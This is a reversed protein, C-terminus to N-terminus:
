GSETGGSSPPRMTVPRSGIGSARRKGADLAIAHVNEDAQDQHHLKAQQGAEQDAAHVKHLADPM